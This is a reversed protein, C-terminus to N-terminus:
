MYLKETVDTDTPTTPPATPMLHNPVAGRPLTPVPETTELTEKPWLITAIVVGAGIILLALASPVVRGAYTRMVAGAIQPADGDIKTLLWPALMFGLLPFAALYVVRKGFRRVHKRDHL